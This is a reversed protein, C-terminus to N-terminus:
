SDAQMLLGQLAPLDHIRITRRDVRILGREALQHLERSFTEPTLNLNSAIIAKGAPLVVEARRRSEHSEEANDLLFSLVRDSAPQLCCIEVDRVLRLMRKSMGNLLRLAFEPYARVADMIMGRRFLVLQTKVLAEAYVPFPQELFMAAEGFMDGPRAIEMVRENGHHSIVALKVSGLLVCFLGFPLDGKECIVDGKAAEILESKTTLFQVLDDQQRDFLALTRLVPLFIDERIAANM